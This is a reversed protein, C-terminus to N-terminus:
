TAMTRLLFTSKYIFNVNKMENWKMEHLVLRVSHTFHLIDMENDQLYCEFFVFFVGIM